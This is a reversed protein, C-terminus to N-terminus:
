ADPSDKGATQLFPAFSAPFAQSPATFTHQPFGEATYDAQDPKPAIEAFAALNLVLSHEM